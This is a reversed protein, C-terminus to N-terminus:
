NAIIQVRDIEFVHPSRTAQSLVQLKISGTENIFRRVNNTTALSVTRDVGNFAMNGIDVFRRQRFDFLFLTANGSPTVRAEVRATIRSPLVGLLVPNVGLIETIVSSRGNGSPAGTAKMRLNDSFSVLFPNTAINSLPDAFGFTTQASMIPVNINASASQHALMAVGTVLFLTALTKLKM